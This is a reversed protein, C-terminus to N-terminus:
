SKRTNCSEDTQLSSSIEGDEGLLKFFDEHIWQAGSDEGEWSLHYYTENGAKKTRKLRPNPLPKGLNSGDKYYLQIFGPVCDSPEWSAESEPFNLWKVLFLDCDDKKKLNLITEIVYINDQSADSSIATSERHERLKMRTDRSVQSSILRPVQVGQAGPLVKVRSCPHKYM